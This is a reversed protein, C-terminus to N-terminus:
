AREGDQMEVLWERLEAAEPGRSLRDLARLLTRSVTRRELRLVEGAEQTSLDFVLRLM